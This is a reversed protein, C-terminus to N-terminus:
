GSGPDFEGYYFFRIFIKSDRSNEERHACRQSCWMRLPISNHKRCKKKERIVLLDFFTTEEKSCTEREFPTCLYACINVNWVKKSFVKILNRIYRIDGGDARGTAEPRVDDLRYLHQLSRMKESLPGMIRNSQNGRFRMFYNIYERLIRSYEEAIANAKETEGALYYDEIVPFTQADSHRIQSFPLEEMSRDLAEVARVTDGRFMLEDALRVFGYRIDSVDYIYNTFYDAYVCPDKVNGYRDVEMINHWLYDADVRGGATKIPVLRYVMGDFQVYDTLGFEHLKQRFIFYLPRGWDFTALMDLIMLESKDVANEPLTIPISDVMLHADEPKVIGSRVANEKNVPLYVKRTPFYDYQVGDGIDIKSGKDERAIFDMVDRLSVSMGELRADELVYVVENVGLYKTEPLSFPVPESDNYKHTMQRIYWDAGLYSTNMIRVDPRVGEVEQAYWLPFTDNDGFNMVISNPLVNNLANYGYDRAVYRHSRDHDDWNQACLIVPVCASVMVAVTTAARPARKGLWEKLSMVGLGIWICFAYFSGTYVYDRERPEGPTTNFYIVLAIGMMVFMIAVVAFNRKDRKLQWLLGIIGLIFPLFYYKNRAKNAAMESPIDTQPGLYLEDIPTIGSLWNGYIMGGDGQIDNQRGVFNWLFYRWYMYNLQYSFFFKINDASTPEGQIDAWAKYADAKDHNYIRPFLHMDDPAFKYGTRKLATKYRGNEDLFTTRKTEYDVIDASYYAGKFLPRSGYQDRGLVASLAYPNSPDNSNMPTDSAARITMTAYSSYGLMIFSVCLMITHATQRQKKHAWGVGATCLVAVMIGWFILGSNVGLGMGNVFLRDFGAGIKMTYPIIISNIAVLIGGAVLLAKVVGWGTAKAKKRFYWVLVIAPICLLNLIHIGISLGMLYAILILWRNSYPEDAAEEWKLICWFVMATFMSSMSYVEGEVASFWQSDTFCYALAGIAGAGLVAWVNDSGRKRAMHTITWFLFLVTFAGCLASMANVMMGVNEPGSAFLTFVRAILAWLPAGPPHGVELKYSASIYEACDWLSATPEITLLYVVAAIAFVGWGALRNLRRFNEMNIIDYPRLTLFFNTVKHAMLPMYVDTM